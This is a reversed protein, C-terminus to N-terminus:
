LVMLDALACAPELQTHPIDAWEHLVAFSVAKQLAIGLLGWWRHQLQLAVGRRIHPHLGRSRERALAPILDVAQQGWRGFVEAGLCQLIGLGSSIVEHYIADNEARAQQLLSGGRNSTGPRARGNTSIPSIVTVDCFRPLGRAVNLGSVVVDLRRTDDPRVTIHTNRLMREINRDPVHGGAETFVQRWATLLGSHRAAAM